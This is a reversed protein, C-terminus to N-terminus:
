FLLGMHRLVNLLAYILMVVAAVYVIRSGKNMRRSAKKTIKNESEIQIRQGSEIPLKDILNNELQAVLATYPQKMMFNYMGTLGIEKTKGDRVWAEFHLKGNAYAYDFFYIKEVIQGTGGVKGMGYDSVYCSKGQWEGKYFGGDQLFGNIVSQVDSEPLQLEM